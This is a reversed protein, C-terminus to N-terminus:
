VPLPSVCRFTEKRKNDTRTLVFAIQRRKELSDSLSLCLCGAIQSSYLVRWEMKFTVASLCCPQTNAQGHELDMANVYISFWNNSGQHLQNHLSLFPALFSDYNCSSRHRQGVMVLTGAGHQYKLPLGTIVQYSRSSIHPLLNAVKACRKACPVSAKCHVSPQLQARAGLECEREWSEDHVYGAFINVGWDANSTLNLRQTVRKEISGM